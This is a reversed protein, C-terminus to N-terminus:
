SLQRQEIYQLVSDPELDQGIDVSTMEPLKSIEKVRRVSKM